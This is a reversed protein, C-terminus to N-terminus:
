MFISLICNTGITNLFVYLKYSFRTLHTNVDKKHITSSYSTAHKGVRGTKNDLVCNLNFFHSSNVCLSQKLAESYFDCTYLLTYYM